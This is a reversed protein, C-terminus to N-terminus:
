LQGLNSTDNANEALLHNYYTDKSEDILKTVKNRQLKHKLNDCTKIATRIEETMWQTQDGRVRMTRLPAHKNCVVLLSLVLVLPCISCLVIEQDNVEITEHPIREQIFIAIGIGNRNRDKRELKHQNTNIEEDLIDKYLCTESLTIVDSKNENFFM